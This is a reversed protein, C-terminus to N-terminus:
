QLETRGFLWWLWKWQWLCIPSFHLPWHQSMQVWWWYMRCECTFVHTSWVARYKDDISVCKLNLILKNNDLNITADVTSQFIDSFMEFLQLICRTKLKTVGASKITSVIVFPVHQYFRKNSYFANSTQHWQFQSLTYLLVLPCRRWTTSTYAQRWRLLAKEKGGAFRKLLLSQAVRMIYIHALGQVWYLSITDRTILSLLCGGVTSVSVPRFSLQVAYRLVYHRKGGITPSTATFHTLESPTTTTITTSTTTSTEALLTIM